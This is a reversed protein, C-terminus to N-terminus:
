SAADGCRGIEEASCCVLVYLNKASVEANAVSFQVKNITCKDRYYLVTMCMEVLKLAEEKTLDPRYYKRLM